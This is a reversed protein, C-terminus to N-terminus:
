LNKDNIEHLRKQLITLDLSLDTAKIIAKETQKLAAKLKGEQLLTDIGKIWNEIQGM